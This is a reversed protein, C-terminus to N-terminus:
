RPTGPPALPRAVMLGHRGARQLIYTSLSDETEVVHHKASSAHLLHVSGDAHRRVFGTHSVLIDPRFTTVAVVDGNQLWPLVSEVQERPVVAPHLAGVQVEMAAIRAFINPDTLPGYLEPHHTMYTAQRPTTVGGLRQTLLEVNARSANDALWEEYYHLRSAYGDIHGGRYRLSTLEHVLCGLLEPSNRWLCRAVALSSEVFSVCQFARFGLRVAEGGRPNPPNGYPKGLQAQAVRAVFDGFAENPRPQGVAAVWAHLAEAEPRSL